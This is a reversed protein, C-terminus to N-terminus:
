KGVSPSVDDGDGFVATLSELASPVATKGHFLLVNGPIIIKQPHLQFTLLLVVNQKIRTHWV